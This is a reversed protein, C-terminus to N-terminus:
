EPKPAVVLVSCPLNKILFSSVPENWLASIGHRRHGIVVLDAGVESALAAIREGPSGFALRETAQLGREGLRVLGEQLIAQFQEVQEQEAGGTPYGGAVAVTPGVDIVALLVVEAQCRQALEAGEVLAMRGDRSGDYALLIKKYM